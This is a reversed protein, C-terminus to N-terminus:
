AQKCHFLFLVRQRFLVAPLLFLVTCEETFSTKWYITCVSILLFFVSVTIFQRLSKRVIMLLLVTCSFPRENFLMFARFSYLTQNNNTVTFAKSKVTFSLRLSSAYLICRYYYYSAYQVFNDLESDKEAM